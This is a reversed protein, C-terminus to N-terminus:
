WSSLEDAPTILGHSVVVYCGDIYLLHIGLELVVKAVSTTWKYLMLRAM